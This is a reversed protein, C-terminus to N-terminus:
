NERRKAIQNQCAIRTPLSLEASESVIEICTGDKLCSRILRWLPKTGPWLKGEAKAKELDQGLKVWCPLNVDGTVGFWPAAQDIDELFGRISRDSIKLGRQKLLRQLPRLFSEAVRPNSTDNGMINLRDCSSGM